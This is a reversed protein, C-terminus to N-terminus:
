KRLAINEMIWIKLKEKFETLKVIQTISSPLKNYLGGARWRFSKQSIDLKPIGKPKIVNNTKQRTNHSYDWNYMSYLKKPSKDEKVRHLQLITFYVSLQHISLWGIQRLNEKTGITWDNKTILRAVRNQIVQLSDMQDKTCSSWVTILYMVKSMFIGNSM